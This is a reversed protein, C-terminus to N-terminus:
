IVDEKYYRLFTKAILQGSSEPLHIGPLGRALIIDDGAMGNKSALEIKVCDKRCSAMQERNLVPAPVTNFILRYRSLTDAVLSLDEAACGLAKIMARDTPKRAAITVDAGITNLLQGLCKGIRGWGLILVPCRRLTIKLYPMAVDLACEATIYANEALYGDDKLFDVTKYGNLAPHSLNGGYVTIDKPMSGLLSEASGGMRLNGGPEFSPVDLLLHGTMDSLQDTVPLGLSRLYTAAYRAAKTNGACFILRKEM